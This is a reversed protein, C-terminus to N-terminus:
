HGTGKMLNQLHADLKDYSSEWFHRYRGVWDSAERLPEAAQGLTYSGSSQSTLPVTKRGFGMRKPPEGLYGDRGNGWNTDM